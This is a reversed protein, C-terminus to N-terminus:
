GQYPRIAAAEWRGLHGPVVVFEVETGPPISRSGGAIQTCHFPYDRGDGDRIVGLGAHQDFSAVAGRRRSV